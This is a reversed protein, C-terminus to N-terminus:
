VGRHQQLGAHMLRSGWAGVAGAAAVDCHGSCINHSSIHHWAVRQLAHHSLSPEALNTIAVQLTIGASCTEGASRQEVNASGNKSALKVCLQVGSICALYAKISELLQCSNGQNGETNGTQKELPATGRM